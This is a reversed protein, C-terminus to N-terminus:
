INKKLFKGSIMLCTELIKKDKLPLSSYFIYVSPFYCRMHKIINEEVGM